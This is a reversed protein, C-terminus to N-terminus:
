SGFTRHCSSHLGESRLQFFILKVLGRNLLFASRSMFRMHRHASKSSANASLIMEVVMQGRLDGSREGVSKKERPHSLFFETYEFVGWLIIIQLHGDCFVNPIHVTSHQVRVELVCNPTDIFTQLSAPSVKFM